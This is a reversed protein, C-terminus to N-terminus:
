RETPIQAAVRGNGHGVGRRAPDRRRSPVFWAGERPDPSRRGPHLSLAQPLPPRSSQVGARKGGSPKRTTASSPLGTPAPEVVDAIFLVGVVRVLDDNASAVQEQLPM